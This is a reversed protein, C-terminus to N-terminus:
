PGLNRGRYRFSAFFENLNRSYMALCEKLITVHNRKHDLTFLRPVWQASLNKLDLYEHLIHHERYTSIGVVKRIM